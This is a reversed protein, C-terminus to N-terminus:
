IKYVEDVKDVIYQNHTVFICVIPLGLINDIVKMEREYDMNSTAEDLILLQPKRVLARTIAIAQKQGFSLNDGNEYVHTDYGMPLTDAFSDLGSIKSYFKIDEDSINKDYLTINNRISDAFLFNNQVVYSISNRLEKLDIKEIEVGNILIQGAHVSDFGLLLKMLTSKGAGNDGVIAIKMGKNVRFSINELLKGKGPYHYCVNNFEVFEIDQKLISKEEYTRENEMYQIDQIRDLSIVASQYTSQISLIDKVPTLLCSLIMYFSLLDGLSIIQGKVLYFGVFIVVTNCIQEILLSLSGSFVSLQNGRYLSDAYTLYKKMFTKKIEYAINNARIIESGQLVEKFFSQMIANNDMIEYNVRRFASNLVRLMVVYFILMSLAIVFLVYNIDILIITSLGIMFVDLFFSVVVGSIMNRVSVIDSIRSLYEGTMRSSVDQIKAQLIKTIYNDILALDIKKSMGSIISGRIYYFLSMIVFSFVLVLLLRGLDMSTFHTLLQLFKNHSNHEAIEGLMGGYDILLQFVYASGLTIGVIIM